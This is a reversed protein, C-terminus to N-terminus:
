PATGIGKDELCQKVKEQAAKVRNRAMSTSKGLVEGIERYVMGSLYYLLIAQKEDRHELRDVCDRVADLTDARAVLAPLDQRPDVLVDEPATEERREDAEGRGAIPLFRILSARRAVDICRNRAIRYLWTRFSARRPDFTHAGKIVRLFVDHVLDEADHSAPVLNRCFAHLGRAHRCYLEDLAGANGEQLQGMLQEDTPAAVTEGRAGPVTLVLHQWIRADLPVM